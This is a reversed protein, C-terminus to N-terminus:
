RRIKHLQLFRERRRHFTQFGRINARRAQVGLDQEHENEAGITGVQVSMGLAFERRFFFISVAFHKALSRSADWRLVNGPM